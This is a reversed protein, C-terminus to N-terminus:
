SFRLDLLRELWLDFDPRSKSALFATAVAVTSAVIAPTLARIKAVGSAARVNASFALTAAAAGLADVLLDFTSCTRGPTLHQHAEDFLGYVAAFLFAARRAFAAAGFTRGRGDFAVTACTAIAAFYVFHAFNGFFGGPLDYRGERDFTTRSSFSFLVGCLLLVGAAGFLRRSRVSIL